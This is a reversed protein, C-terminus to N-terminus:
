PERDFAVLQLRFMRQGIARPDEIPIRELRAGHYLKSHARPLTMAPMRYLNLFM